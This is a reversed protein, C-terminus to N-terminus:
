GPIRKLGTVRMMAYPAGQCVPSRFTIGKRFGGYAIIRTVPEFLIGPNGVVAIKIHAAASHGMMFRGTGESRNWKLHGVGPGGKQNGASCQLPGTHFKHISFVIFYKELYGAIPM